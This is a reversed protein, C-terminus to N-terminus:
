GAFRVDTIGFLPWQVGILWAGIFIGALCIMMYGDASSFGSRYYYTRNASSNFRRAEMAVAIRQARRISQALLPIAYMRLRQFLSSWKKSYKVGRVKYAQRLTKFEQLILPLMRLSAMFGYAYRPPFKWQQMLSYFLLVPRTTLAFLLGILGFSLARLGVHMGRYFSERSIIVPGWKWWLTEGQGFLVMSAGTSIFVFIFPSMFLLVRGVPQGSGLLLLLALASVLPIMMNINHILLIGIIGSLLLGLKLAPNVRHIWSTYEKNYLM